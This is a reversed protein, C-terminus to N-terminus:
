FCDAKIHRVFKRVRQAATKRADAAFGQWNRSPQSCAIPPNEIM